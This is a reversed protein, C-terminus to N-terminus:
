KGGLVCDALALLNREKLFDRNLGPQVFDESPQANHVKNHALYVATATQAIEPDSAAWPKEQFALTGAVRDRMGWLSVLFAIVDAQSMQFVKEELETLPKKEALASECAMRHAKAFNDILVLRGLDHLLGAVGADRAQEERLNMQKAIRYALASTKERHRSLNHPFFYSPIAPPTKYISHTLVAAKVRETGLITIAQLLNTIAEVDAAKGYLPSNAMQLIKASIAADKTLIETVRTYPTNPNELAVLLEYYIQPLAPLTRLSLVTSRIEPNRFQRLSQLAKQIKSRIDPFSFPKGFYQHASVFADLYAFGSILIRISMPALQRIQELMAVGTMEPMSFDSVVIDPQSKRTAEIALTPKQFCEIKWSNDARALYSRLMELILPEDDVLYILAAM